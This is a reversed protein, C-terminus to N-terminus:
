RCTHETHVHHTCPTSGPQTMTLAATISLWPSSCRSQPWAQRTHSRTVAEASGPQPAPHLVLIPTLGQPITWSSSGLAVSSLGLATMRGTNYTTQPVHSHMAPPQTSKCICSVHPLPFFASRAAPAGLNEGLELFPTEPCHRSGEPDRHSSRGGLATRPSLHSSTDPAALLCCKELAKQSGHSRRSTELWRDGRDKGYARASPTHM